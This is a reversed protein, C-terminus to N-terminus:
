RVGQGLLFREVTSKTPPMPRIRSIREINVDVIRPAAREAEPHVTVRRGVGIKDIDLTENRFRVIRANDKLATEDIVYDIFKDSQAANLKGSSALADAATIVAKQVLDENSVNGM